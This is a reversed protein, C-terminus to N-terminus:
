KTMGLYKGGFGDNSSMGIVVAAGLCIVVLISGTKNPTILTIM